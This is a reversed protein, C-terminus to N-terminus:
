GGTVTNNLIRQGKRTRMMKGRNDATKLNDKYKDSESCTLLSDGCPCDRLSDVQSMRGQKRWTDSNTVWWVPRRRMGTNNSPIWLKGRNEM